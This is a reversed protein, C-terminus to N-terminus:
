RRRSFLEGTDDLFHKITLSKAINVARRERVRQSWTSNYHGIFIDADICIQQEVLSWLYPDNKEDDISAVVDGTINRASFVNPVAFSRLEGVFNTSIPPSAVYIQTFNRNKMFKQLSKALHVSIENMREVDRKYYDCPPNEDNGLFKCFATYIEQPKNRWHIAIYPKGKLVNQRISGATKRIDPSLEMHKIIKDHVAPSFDGKHDRHVWLGVCKMSSVAQLQDALPDETEPLNQYEPLAIGFASRYLKASRSFSNTMNAGGSPDAVIAAVTHNCKENFEQVTVINVIEKMMKTDFTEELSKTDKIKSHKNFMDHEMFLVANVLSRNQSLSYKLASTFYGYQCNPGGFGFANIYLLLRASSSTKDVSKVGARQTSVTATSVVNSRKEIFLSRDVGGGGGTTKNEEQRPYDDVETSRDAAARRYGTLTTM